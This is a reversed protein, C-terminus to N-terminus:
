RKKVGTEASCFTGSSMRHGVVCLSIPMNIQDRFDFGDALRSSIDEAIRLVLCLPVPVM